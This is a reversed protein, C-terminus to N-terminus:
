ELDWLYDQTEIHLDQLSGKFLVCFGRGVGKLSVDAHENTPSSTSTSIGLICKEFM